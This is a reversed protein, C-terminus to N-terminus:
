AIFNNANKSINANINSNKKLLSAIIILKSLIGSTIKYGNQLLNQGLEFGGELDKIVGVPDCLHNNWYKSEYDQAQMFRNESIIKSM